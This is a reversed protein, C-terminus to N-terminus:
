ATLDIGLGLTKVSLSLNNVLSTTLSQSINRTSVTKVTKNAIDTANFTLIQPSNNTIATVASGMVQILPINILLIKLSVDAIDADTFTQPQSF